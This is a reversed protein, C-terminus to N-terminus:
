FINLNQFHISVVIVHFKRLCSTRYRWVMFLFIKNHGARRLLTRANHQLFLM